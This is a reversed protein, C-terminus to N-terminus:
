SLYLDRTKSIMKELSFIGEVRLKASVGMSLRLEKNELLTIFAEVIEHVNDKLALLGTEHNLVIEPIGGVWTGIVPLEAIGAELPFYPFAETRSTLTAIDFAHLYTNADSKFGVLFVRTSLGARDILQELKKRQDGEGIVVFIVEPYQASIHLFARIATDVGKNAHLESITGIWTADVKGPVLSERASDRSLFDVKGIGNSITVIKNKVFPFRRIQDKTRESVAITHHSCLITIWHLFGIVIKSVLSRDENFAWGHGTFIIKKIGVVRGAITGLVGIKSSNLHLIDPKETKLISVIEFFAKLDRFVSVDRRLSDIFISRVHAGELKTRLTVGEGSAVVVDFTDSPVHTALDYVYHQAGGFNGKTIMLLVKLKKHM